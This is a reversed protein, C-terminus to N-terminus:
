GAHQTDGTEMDCLLTPQWMNNDTQANRVTLELSKIRTDGPLDKVIVRMGEGMPVRLSPDGWQEEPVLLNKDIHNLQVRYAHIGTIEEGWERDRARWDKNPTVAAYGVWVPKEPEADVGGTHPNFVHKKTREKDYIEVMGDCFLEMPRYALGLFRRELFMRSGIAM